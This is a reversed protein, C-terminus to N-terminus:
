AAFVKADNVARLVRQGPLEVPQAFPPEGALSRQSKSLERQADFPEFPEHLFLRQPANVLAHEADQGELALRDIGPQLPLTARNREGAEAGAILTPTVSVM